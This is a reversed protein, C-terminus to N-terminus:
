LFLQEQASDQNHLHRDVKQPTGLSHKLTFLIVQGIERILARGRCTEGPVWKENRGRRIHTPIKSRSQIVNMPMVPKM